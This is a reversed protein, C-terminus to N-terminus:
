TLRPASLSNPAFIAVATHCLVGLDTKWTRSALFEAYGQLKYPVLVTSYFAERDGDVAGLIAQENRLRVTVPDTLGPRAALARRWRVDNLDVYRPVEPRPGVLAMDGRVVNWLAPLEDVKASRLIRGVRTIRRDDGATFQPGGPAAFM